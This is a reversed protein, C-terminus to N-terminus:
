ESGVVALDLQAHHRMECFIRTQDFRKIAAGVNVGRGRRAHEVDVLGLDVIELAPEGLDDVVPEGVAHLRVPERLPEVDRGFLGPFDEVCVEGRERVDSGIHLLRHAFRFRASVGGRQEAPAPLQGLQRGVVEADALHPLAHRLVRWHLPARGVDELERHDVEVPRQGFALELAAHDERHVVLQHEFDRVPSRLFTSGTTRSTISCTVSSRTGSTTSM